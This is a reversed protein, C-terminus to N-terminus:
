GQKAAGWGAGQLVTVQCLAGQVGGLRNWSVEVAASAM